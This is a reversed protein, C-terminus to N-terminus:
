AQRWRNKLRRLSAAFWRPLLSIMVWKWKEGRFVRTDCALLANRGEAPSHFRIQRAAYSLVFRNKVEAVYRLASPTLNPTKGVVRDLTKFFYPVKPPPNRVSAHVEADRYYVAAVRSDFFVTSAEILRLWTDIDEGEGAKVEKPFGGIRRLVEKKVMVSSSFIASAQLGLRCYEGIGLLMSNETPMIASRRPKDGDAIEFNFAVAGIDPMEHFRELSWALFDPKYEDDADLFAILSAAAEEAGRNRAVSVGSNEQRIIRIRPDGLREVRRPSDDTSGDDVVVIEFDRFTQSLVSGVTRGIHKEKNYLPIVVSVAPKM